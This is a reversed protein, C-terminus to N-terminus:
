KNGLKYFVHQGIQIQPRQNVAWKPLGEINVSHYHDSGKTLDPWNKMLLGVAVKKCFNFLSDTLRDQSVVKFNPDKPNWCSFQWPKKCVEIVSSGFWTRQMLRNIVVNGVAIFSGLGGSQKYYEGRAEGYLTRALIEIEDNEWM